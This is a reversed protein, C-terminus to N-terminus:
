SAASCQCVASLCQLWYGGACLVMHGTRQVALLQKSRQHLLVSGFTNGGFSPVHPALRHEGPVNRSLSKIPVHLTVSSPHQCLLMATSKGIQMNVKQSSIQKAVAAALKFVQPVYLRVPGFTGLSALM